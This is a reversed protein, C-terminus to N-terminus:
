EVVAGTRVLHHVCARAGHIGHEDVSPGALDAGVGFRQCQDGDATVAPALQLWAGVHVQEDQEVLARIRAVALAKLREDCQEPIDAQIDAV